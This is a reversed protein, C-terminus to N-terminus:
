WSVMKVQGWFRSVRKGGSGGGGGGGGSRRGVEVVKWRATDNAREFELSVISPM